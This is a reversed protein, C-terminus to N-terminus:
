RTRYVRPRLTVQSERHRGIIKMVNILARFNNNNNNLQLQAKSRHCYYLLLACCVLLM